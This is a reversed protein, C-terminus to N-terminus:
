SVLAPAAEGNIIELVAKTKSEFLRGTGNEVVKKIEALKQQAFGLEEQVSILEAELLKNQRQLLLVQKVTNNAKEFTEGYGELTSLIGTLYFPLGFLGYAGSEDRIIIYQPINSSTAAGLSIRDFEKLQQYRTIQVGNVFTPVKINEGPIIILKNRALPEPNDNAIYMLKTGQLNIDTSELLSFIHSYGPFKFNQLEGLAILLRNSELTNAEITKTLKLAREKGEIKLRNDERAKDLLASSNSLITASVQCLPNKLLYQNNVWPMNGKVRELTAQLIPLEENAIGETLSSTILTNLRSVETLQRTIYEQISINKLLSVEVINMIGKFDTRLRAAPESEDLKAEPVNVLRTAGTFIAPHNQVLANASQAITNIHAPSTSNINSLVLDNFNALELSAKEINSELNEIVVLANTSEM